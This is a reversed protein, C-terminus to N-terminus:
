TRLDAPTKDERLRKFAAQRLLGEKGWGRFAVEAVLRPRVWHVDSVRVTAHAPIDLVPADQRLPAMRALLRRLTADDYGTGVRGAYRLRGGEERAMLLSGFHSRAGRPATYGVILFEDSDENKVKAWSASRVQEYPADLRKSVIGEVGQRKSTAFVRPGNGVIHRSFHLERPTSGSLLSQLLKKREVLPSARLDVGALGPLDFVLYRLADTERQKIAHQLASFDSRGRADLAVLEGDLVAERVPLAAIARALAPFRTTWDLGNRTHLRVVGDHLEAILRYGDWKIEHLWDEGAPATPRPSALQPRFPSPLSGALAGPLRSARAAWDNRAGRRPPRLEGGVRAPDVIRRRGVLDGVEMDRAM